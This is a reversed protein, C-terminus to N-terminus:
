GDRRPRRPRKGQAMATQWADLLLERATNGDVAALAVMTCGAKGWAGTAPTLADAHTALWRQQQAPALRVMARVGDEQLSAFIRGFVRFDPHNMHAGPEVGDFALAWKTFQAASVM